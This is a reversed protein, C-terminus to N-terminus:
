HALATRQQRETVEQGQRQADLDRLSMASQRASTQGAEDLDVMSRRQAPDQLDGQVAIASGGRSSAVVHDIRELGDRGARAAMGAATNFFRENDALGLPERQAALGTVADGLLRNSTSGVDGITQPSSGPSRERVQLQALDQAEMVSEIFHLDVRHMLMKGPVLREFFSLPDPDPLEIKHGPADPMAWKLPISDEQLHTLIENRVHYTRILGQEAEQKLVDADLGYREVTKDHVGAANFTVAPIDNVMSAAAALGGGLSHGAFVVNDGFADKAKRGLNIARDYQEDKLGLGQTFNHKWDRGEDTGTFALIVHGQADRYFSADFGSKADHMLAPHIGAARVDDEDMRAWTGPLQPADGAVGRRLDTVAYNDQLLTSLERDIAHALQGRVEGAFGTGHTAPPSGNIFNNM